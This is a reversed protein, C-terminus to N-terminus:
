ARNKQAKEREKKLSEPLDNAWKTISGAGLCVVFDEPRAHEAIIQPLVSQNELAYAHQHGHTRIGKVLDDKSAGEIPAEGAEYVDAIYVIDAQNFCTCFEEFLSSLRTYRHPQMVAIVRGETGEVGQRAAKLVAEIETPHHGYDDIIRIGDVIGTTTFRRKVGSFGALGKRIVADSVGMEMAVTIAAAANQVNHEGLMPLTIGEFMRDEEVGYVWAKILLDFRTEAGTSKMNLIQIDAQNNFGYTIV